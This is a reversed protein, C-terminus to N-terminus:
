NRPVEEVFIETPNRAGECVTSERIRLQVLTAAADMVEETIILATQEEDNHASTTEIEHVDNGHTKEDNQEGGDNGRTEEDNQEGGDNGRTEEDNQEGGDNWRAEEDNQEGGDNGRTEEDNQEGGDNRHTEEDNQEGGDNRHTEEDNEPWVIHKNVSSLLLSLQRKVGSELGMLYYEIEYAVDLLNKLPWNANVKQLQWYALTATPWGPTQGSAPRGSQRAQYASRTRVGIQPFVHIKLLWTSGPTDVISDVEGVAPLM